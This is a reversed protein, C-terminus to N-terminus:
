LACVQNHQDVGLKDSKGETNKMNEAKFTAVAACMSLGRVVCLPQFWGGEINFAAMNFKEVTKFVMTGSCAGM